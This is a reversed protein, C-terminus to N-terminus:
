DVGPIGSKMSQFWIVVNGIQHVGKWDKGSVTSSIRTTGVNSAKRM